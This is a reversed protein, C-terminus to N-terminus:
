FFSNGYQSLHMGAAFSMFANGTRIRLQDSSHFCVLVGDGWHTHYSWCVFSNTGSFTSSSQQKRAAWLGLADAALVCVLCPPSVRKFTLEVTRTAVKWEAPKTQISLCFGVPALFLLSGDSAKISVHKTAAHTHPRWQQLVWSVLLKELSRGHFSLMPQASAATGPQNRIPLVSSGINPRPILGHPAAEFEGRHTIESCVRLSPHFFTLGSDASPPHLLPLAEASSLKQWM